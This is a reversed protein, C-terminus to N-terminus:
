TPIDTSNNMVETLRLYESILYQGLKSKRAGTARIFAQSDTYSTVTAKGVETRGQLMWATLISGVAKGKYTTHKTLLGFHYRLIQEPEEVGKRYLVAATGVNGKYGSGDTYIRIDVKDKGEETISTEKTEAITTSFSRRYTPPRPDPMITEIRGPRIKFCEILKQLPTLHTRAPMKSYGWIMARVPHDRPLTAAQVTAAHCIRELM